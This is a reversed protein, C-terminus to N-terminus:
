CSICGCWTSNGASPNGPTGTRGSDVFQWIKFLHEVLHYGQVVLAVSLLWWSAVGRRWQRPRQGGSTTYVLTLLWFNLLAYALHLIEPHLLQGLIGDAVVLRLVDRQVLEVVHEAGQFAQVVLATLFALALAPSTAREAARMSSPQGSPGGKLGEGATRDDGDM